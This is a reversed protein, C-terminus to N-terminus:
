SLLNICSCIEARQEQKEFSAIFFFLDLEFLWLVQDKEYIIENISSSKIQLFFSEKAIFRYADQNTLLRVLAIGKPIPTVLDFKKFLLLTFEEIIDSPM